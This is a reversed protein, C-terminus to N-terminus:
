QEVLQCSCLRQRLLAALFLPCREFFQMIDYLQLLEMTTAVFGPRDTPSLKNNVIVKIEFPTM